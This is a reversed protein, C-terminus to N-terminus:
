YGVDIDLCLNSVLLNNKFVQLCCVKKLEYALFTGFM